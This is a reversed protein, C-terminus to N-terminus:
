SIVGHIEAEYMAFEELSLLGLVSGVRHMSLYEEKTCSDLIVLNYCGSGGGKPVDDVPARLLLLPKNRWTSLDKENHYVSAYFESGDEVMYTMRDHFTETVRAMSKGLSDEDSTDKIEKLEVAIALWTGHLGQEDLHMSLGERLVLGECNVVVLPAWTWPPPLGVPGHLWAYRYADNGLSKLLIIQGEELTTDAGPWHLNFLPFLARCMDIPKSTRRGNSVFTIREFPNISEKVLECLTIMAGVLMWHNEPDDYDILDYLMERATWHGDGHLFVLDPSLMAEQMTWVRTMWDSVAMALVKERDTGGKMALLLRDCVITAAPSSYVHNMANVAIMRLERVGSVMAADLWIWDMDFESAAALLMDLVRSCIGDESVGQWGHSWVHSVAIFQGTGRYSLRGEAGICLVTDGNQLGQGDLAVDIRRCSGKYQSGCFVFTNTGPKCQPCFTIDSPVAATSNLSEYARLVAPAEKMGYGETNCAMTARPRECGAEILADILPSQLISPDENLFAATWPRFLCEGTPLDICPLPSHYCVNPRSM